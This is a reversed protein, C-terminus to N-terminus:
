EVVLKSGALWTKADRLHLYYKGGSLASVDVTASLKNVNQQVPQELVVRGTADLLLARVQGSVEVGETLDLAVSVRDSATSSAGKPTRTFQTAGPEISPSM